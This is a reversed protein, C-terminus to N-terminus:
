QGARKKRNTLLMALYATGTLLMLAIGITAPKLGSGGTDPLRLRADYKNKFTIDPDSIFIGPTDEGIDVPYWTTDWEDNVADYTRYEMEVELVGESAGPTVIVKVMYVTEDYTWGDESGPRETLLYYYTGPGLDELVFTFIADNGIFVYGDIPLSENL